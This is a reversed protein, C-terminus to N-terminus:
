SLHILSCFLLSLFLHVSSSFFLLFYFNPAVAIFSSSLSSFIFSSVINVFVLSCQHHFPHNVSVFAFMITFVTMNLFLFGLLVCIYVSQKVSSPETCITLGSMNQAYVM